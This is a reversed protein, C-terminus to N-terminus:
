GNSVCRELFMSKKGTNAAYSMAPLEKMYMKLIEQLLLSAYYKLFMSILQVRFM